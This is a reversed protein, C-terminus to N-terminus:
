ALLMICRKSIAVPRSVSGLSTTLSIIVEVRLTLAASPLFLKSHGVHAASTLLKLKAALLQKQAPMQEETRVPCCRSCSVATSHVVLHGM